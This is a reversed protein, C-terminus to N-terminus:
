DLRPVGIVARTISISAASSIARVRGIPGCTVAVSRLSGMVGLSRETTTAAGGGARRRSPTIVNPSALMATNKTPQSATSAAAQTEVANSRLAARPTNAAIAILAPTAPAPATIARSNALRNRSLLTSSM